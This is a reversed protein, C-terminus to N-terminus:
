ARMRAIQQWLEAKIWARTEREWADWADLIRRTHDSQAPPVAPEELKRNRKRPPEKPRLHKYPHKRFRLGAAATRGALTNYAVDLALAIQKLTYGQAHMERVARMDIDVSRAAM